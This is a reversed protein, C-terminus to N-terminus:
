CVDAVQQPKDKLPPPEDDLQHLWKWFLTLYVCFFKSVKCVEFWFISSSHMELVVATGWVDVCM